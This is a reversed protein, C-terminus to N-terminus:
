SALRRSGPGEGSGAATRVAGILDSGRIQKLVYGAAGAARADARTQDDARATLMLCAVEPRQSRLQQCVSIGDGDPLRVDLIAVDPGLAPIRELAAAATGAEGIVRIDPQTQLFDKVGARVLEHDDLLFVTIVRSGTEAM